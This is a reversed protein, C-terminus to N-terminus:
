RVCGRCLRQKTVRRIQKNGDCILVAKLLVVSWSAPLIKEINQEDHNFYTVIHDNFWYFFFVHIATFNSTKWACKNTYMGKTFRTTLIQEIFQLTTPTHAVTASPWTSVITIFQKWYQRDPSGFRGHKTSFNLCVLIMSSQPSSVDVRSWNRGVGKNGLYSSTSM